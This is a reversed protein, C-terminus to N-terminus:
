RIRKSLATFGPLWPRRRQWLQVMLWLSVVFYGSTLFTSLLLPWLAHGGGNGLSLLAYGMLWSATLTVSLRSLYRQQRDGRQQAILWLAPLSGLVPVLYVFLGLRRLAPSTQSVAAPRPATAESAITQRHPSEPSPM